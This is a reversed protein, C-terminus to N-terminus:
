CKFCIIKLNFEYLHYTTKIKNDPLQKKLFKASTNILISLQKSMSISYRFFYFNIFSIRIIRSEVFVKSIPLQCLYTMYTQWSFEM